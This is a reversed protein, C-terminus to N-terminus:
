NSCRCRNSYIAADDNVETAATGVDFETATGVDVDVVAAEIAEAAIVVDVDARDVVYEITDQENLEAAASADLDVEMVAFIPREVGGGANTGAGVDTTDEAAVAM